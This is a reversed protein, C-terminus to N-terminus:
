AWFPKDGNAITVMGVTMLERVKAERQVAQSHDTHPLKRFNKEPHDLM